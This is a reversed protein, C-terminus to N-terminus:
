QQADAAIYDLTQEAAWISQEPRPELGGDPTRVLGVIDLLANDDRVYLWNSLGGTTVYYAENVRDVYEDTFRDDVEMVNLDNYQSTAVMIVTEAEDENAAYTVAVGVGESEEPPAYYELADDATVQLPGWDDGFASAPVTPAEGPPYTPSQAVAVPAVATSGLVSGTAVLFRRRNM